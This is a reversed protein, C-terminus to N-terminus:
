AALQEPDTRLLREVVTPEAPRAFYYGQALGCGLGSLIEAQAASEVGEPVATLNLATSLTVIARVLTSQGACGDVGDVFSKDIKLSDFPLDRLYALSSYGTGFDDLALHVGLKRLELLRGGVGAARDILGNETVELVLTEPRTGAFALATRVEQVFGPERLQRAAVNVHVTLREGPYAHQWRAMQRCAEELVWRGLPVILGTEEALPVFQDPNVLGRRPHNWRVLAEFAVPRRTRLDVIPQYHLTFQGAEIARRLDTELELRRVVDARLSPEFVSFRSKGGRKAAYMAVDAQSLLEEVDETGCGIAIGISATVFVETTPLAIPTRLAELIREAICKATAVPSSPEELLVAFEDGGLRAAIECERLCGRLRHAVEGLVRDGAAHGLSDNVNKFGDVDLLLVAVGGGSRSVRSLAHHTRDALLSRNALGTLADYFADHELHERLAVNDLALAVEMGLAELGAKCEDPLSSQSMVAIAGCLRERAFLPIAYAITAWSALGLAIAPLGIQDGRVEIPMRRLLLERVGPLRDLDLDANRLHAANSSTTGVLHMHEVNGAILIAQPQAHPSVIARVCELMAAFVTQEDSSAVLQSGVRALAQERAAARGHRRLSSGLVYMVAVMAVGTPQLLLEPSWFSLNDRKPSLLIAAAYASLQVATALMLRRRNGFLARLFLGPYILIGARMPDGTGFGIVLLAPGALLDVAVGFKGRRYGRLWCWGLYGCALAGCLRIALWAESAGILALSLGVDFLAVLLFCWRVRALLGRPPAFWKRRATV